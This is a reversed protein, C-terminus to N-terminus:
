GQRSSGTLLLAPMDGKMVGCNDMGWLLKLLGPLNLFDHHIQVNTGNVRAVRSVLIGFAVEYYEITLSEFM